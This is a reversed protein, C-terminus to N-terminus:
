SGKKSKYNLTIIKANLTQVDDPECPHEEDKLYIRFMWDLFACMQDTHTIVLLHSTERILPKPLKSRRHVTLLDQQENPLHM